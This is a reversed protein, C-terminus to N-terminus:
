YEGASRNMEIYRQIDKPSFRIQGGVTCFPLKRQIKLRQVTRKSIGLFEAVENYTLLGQHDNTM